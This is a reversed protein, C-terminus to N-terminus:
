ASIVCFTTCNRKPAGNNQKRIREFDYVRVATTYMSGDLFTHGYKLFQISNMVHIWARAVFLLNVSFSRFTDVFAPQQCQWLLHINSGTRFNLKIRNNKKQIKVFKLKCISQSKSTLAESIWVCARMSELKSYRTRHGFKGCAKFCTIFEIAQSM